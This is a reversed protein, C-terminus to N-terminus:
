LTPKKTEEAGKCRVCTTAFPMAKLRQEDIDEECVSCVGYLGDELRRLAADMEELERRKIDAIAVGTEEIFDILSLEEIDHPNDFQKNYENGLKKFFEDRLGSWMLRKRDLLAKKLRKTRIDSEPM